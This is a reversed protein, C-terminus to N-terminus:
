QGAQLASNLYAFCCISLTLALLGYSLTRLAKGKWDGYCYEIVASGLSTSALMVPWGIVPGYGGMWPMAWGYLLMGIMWIVAMGIAMLAYKLANPQHFQKLTDNKKWLGACYIANSVFSTGLYPIYFAFTMFVESSGHNRAVKMFNDSFAIGINQLPTLLGSGISLAIGQLAITSTTVKGYDIEMYASEMDRQSGSIACVIVGIVSLVLGAVIVLGLRSHLVGEHQIVLPVFSGIVLSVGNSLSNALTMGVKGLARGLLIGSTGAVLGIALVILNARLGVERLVGFVSPITFYGIIVPLIVCGSLVWVFWTNEWAFKKMYRMPFFCVGTLVGSLIALVVGTLM